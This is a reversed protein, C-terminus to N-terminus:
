SVPQDSHGSLGIHRLLSESRPDERLIDFLPRVLQLALFGENERYADDLCAFAEDKRDLGAFIFSRNVAAVYERRSRDELERLLELAEEDRGWMACAGGLMGVYM